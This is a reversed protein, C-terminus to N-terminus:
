FASECQRGLGRVEYDLVDDPPDAGGRLLEAVVRDAADRSLTERVTTVCHSAYFIPTRRWADQANVPARCSFCSDLVDFLVGFKSEHDIRDVVHCITPFKPM